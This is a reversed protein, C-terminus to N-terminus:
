RLKEGLTVTAIEENIFKIDVKPPLPQRKGAAFADVLVQQVLPHFVNKQTEFKDGDKKIFVELHDVKTSENRQTAIRSVYYEGQFKVKSKNGIEFAEVRRIEDLSHEELQITVPAGSLLATLLASQIIPSRSILRRSSTADAGVLFLSPEKEDASARIAWVNDQALVSSWPLFVFVAIGLALPRLLMM